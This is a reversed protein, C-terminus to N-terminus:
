TRWYTGQWVPKGWRETWIADAERSQGLVLLQGELLSESVWLYAEFLKKLSSPRARRRPGEPTM